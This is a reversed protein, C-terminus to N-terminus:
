ASCAVGGAPSQVQPAVGTDSLRARSVVDSVVSRVETELAGARAGTARAGSWAKTYMKPAETSTSLEFVGMAGTLLLRRARRSKAALLLGKILWPM